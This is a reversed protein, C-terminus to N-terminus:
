GKIFESLKIKINFRNIMDSFVGNLALLRNYKKETAYLIFYRHQHTEYGKLEKRYYDGLGLETSIETMSMIDLSLLEMTSVHYKDAMKDFKFSIKYVVENDM